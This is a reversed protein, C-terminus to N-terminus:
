FSGPAPKASVTAIITAQLETMSAVMTLSSHVREVGGGPPFAQEGRVVSAQVVVRCHGTSIEM